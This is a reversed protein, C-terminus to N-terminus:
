ILRRAGNRNRCGATRQQLAARGTENSKVRLTQKPPVIFPPVHKRREFGYSQVWEQVLWLPHSTEISLRKVPDKIDDFAPVGERQVSRLVGNVLSSIGKHGRKKTLEVAEHIAARDPIKELYVMQYLSMRLLQM